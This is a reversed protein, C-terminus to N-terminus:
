QSGLPGWLWRLMLIKELTESKLESPISVRSSIGIRPEGSAGLAVWLSGLAFMANKSCGMIIRRSFGEIWLLSELSDKSFLTSRQAGWKRSVTSLIRRDLAFERSFGELFIHKFGELSDKSRSCVVVFFM